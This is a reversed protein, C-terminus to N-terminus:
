KVASVFKDADKDFYTFINDEIKDFADAKFEARLVSMREDRTVM